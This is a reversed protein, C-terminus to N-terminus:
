NFQRVPIQLWLGNFPKQDWQLATFDSTIPGSRKANGSFPDANDLWDLAVKWWQRAKLEAKAFPDSPYLLEGDHLFVFIELTWESALRAHGIRDTTIEQQQKSIIVFPTKPNISAYDDPYIYIRGTGTAPSAPALAGVQTKAENLVAEESTAM